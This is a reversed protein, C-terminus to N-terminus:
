IRNLFMWCDGFDEKNCVSRRALCFVKAAQLEVVAAAFEEVQGEIKELKEYHALLPGHDKAAQFIIRFRGLV